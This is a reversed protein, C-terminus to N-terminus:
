QKKALYCIYLSLIAAFFCWTSAFTANYLLYSLAAFIFMLIGLINLNRKSSLLLSGGTFLFYIIGFADLTANCYTLYCISHSIIKAEVHEPYLLFYFFLGFGFLFGFFTFFTFLTRRTIDFISLSLPIWFPWFFYAFFLYGYSLLKVFSTLSPDNIYVWIIGELFQQIAFFLPIFALPLFSKSAKRISYVSAIALLAAASFSAPASFCM